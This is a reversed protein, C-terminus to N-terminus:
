YPDHGKRCSISLKLLKSLTEVGCRTYSTGKSREMEAEHSMVGSVTAGQRLEASACVVEASLSQIPHRATWDRMLFRPIVVRAIHVRYTSARIEGVTIHGTGIGEIGAYQQLLSVDRLRIDILIPIGQVREEIRSGSADSSASQDESREVASAESSRRRLTQAKLALSTGKGLVSM